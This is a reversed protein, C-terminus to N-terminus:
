EDLEKLAQTIMREFVSEKSGLEEYAAKIMRESVNDRYHELTARIAARAEDRWTNATDKGDIFASEIAVAVREVVDDMVTEKRGPVKVVNGRIEWFPTRLDKSTFWLATETGNAHYFILSWRNKDIRELHAGATSVIEDLKGDIFERRDTM